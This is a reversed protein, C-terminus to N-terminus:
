RWVEGAEFRLLRAKLKVGGPASYNGLGGDARIVRHCPIVLPLDNTAMARGVARAAAPSGAKAALEGYTLSPARLKQLTRLVTCDFDTRSFLDVRVGGFAFPEGRWYREWADLFDEPPRVGRPTRTAAGGTSLIKIRTLGRTSWRAEVTLPAGGTVVATQEDAHTITM